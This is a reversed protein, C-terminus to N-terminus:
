ISCSATQPSLKLIMNYRHTIRFFHLLSVPMNPCTDKKYALIPVFVPLSLNETYLYFCSSSMSVALCIRFRISFSIVMMTHCGIFEAFNFFFCLSCTYISKNCFREITAMVALAKASSTCNALFVPMFPCIAFGSSIFLNFSTRSFQSYNGELHMPFAESFTSLPIIANINKCSCTAFRIAFM